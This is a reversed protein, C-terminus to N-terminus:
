CQEEEKKFDNIIKSMKIILEKCTMLDRKVILRDKIDNEKINSGRLIEIIEKDGLIEIIVKKETAAKQLARKIEWAEHISNIELEM